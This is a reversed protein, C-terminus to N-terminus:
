RLEETTPKPHRFVISSYLVYNWITTAVTAILKAILLALDDPYAGLLPLSAQIIVTQIVWLGFLTVITFLIIERILNAGHTKFTYKKNAIFSFCFAIGTSSINASTIPLRLPGQFLFLLGFDLLTAVVGVLLFRITQPASKGSM